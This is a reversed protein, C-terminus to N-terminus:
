VHARGIEDVTRHKDFTFDRPNFCEVQLLGNKVARGVVGQQTFTEFMEPFLSIVGYWRSPEQSLEQM